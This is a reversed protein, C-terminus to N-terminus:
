ASMGVWGEGCICGCGLLGVGACLGYVVLWGVLWGVLCVFLCVSRAREEKRARLAGELEGVREQLESERERLTHLEELLSSPHIHCGGNNNSSATTSSAARGTHPSKLPHTPSLPVSLSLSVSGFVCV